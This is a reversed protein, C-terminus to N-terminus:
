EVTCDGGLSSNMRQECVKRLSTPRM